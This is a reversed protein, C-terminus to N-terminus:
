YHKKGSIRWVFYNCMRRAITSTMITLLTVHYTRKVM